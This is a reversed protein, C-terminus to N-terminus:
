EDRREESERRTARPPKAAGNVAPPEHNAVVALPRSVVVPSATLRVPAGELHRYSVAVADHAWILMLTKEIVTGGLRYRWTPWPDVHFSELLRHGAPRATGNPQVVCALDFAGEDTLGREDLKLLMAFPSGQNMVALAAHTSRTIAGAETGSASGGLGNSVVWECALARPLRTLVDQGLGM